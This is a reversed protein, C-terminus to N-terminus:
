PLDLAVQLHQAPEERTPYITAPASSSDDLCEGTELSYALHHHPCIIMSRVVRAGAMSAHEHPCIENVAHFRMLSRCILVGLGNIELRLPSLGPVDRTSCADYWSAM